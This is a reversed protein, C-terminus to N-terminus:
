APDRGDGKCHLPLAAGPEELFTRAIIMTCADTM